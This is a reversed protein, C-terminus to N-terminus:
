FSKTYLISYVCNWYNLTKRIKDIVKLYGLLLEFCLHRGTWQGDPDTQCSQWCGLGLLLRCFHAVNRSFLSWVCFIVLWSKKTTLAM